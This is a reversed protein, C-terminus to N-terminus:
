VCYWAVGCVFLASLSRNGCAQTHVFLLTICIVIYSYCCYFLLSNTHYHQTNSESKLPPPTQNNARISRYPKLLPVASSSIAGEVSSRGFSFSATTRRFVSMKNRQRQSPVVALSIWSLCSCATSAHLRKREDKNPFLLDDDAAGARRSVTPAVAVVPLNSQEKGVAAAILRLEM